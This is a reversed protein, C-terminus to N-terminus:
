LQSVEIQELLSIYDAPLGWHRAGEVVLRKYEPSTLPVNHDRAAVYLLVEFPRQGDDSAFVLATFRAYGDEFTDLTALDEQSVNYVVGWVISGREPLVNATGCNRLRSHRAIAFRYDPLRATGVFQASPCRQRMQAWNM